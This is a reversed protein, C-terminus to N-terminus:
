LGHGRHSARDPAEERRGEAAALRRSPRADHSSALAAASVAYAPLELVRDRLRDVLSRAPEEGGARAEAYAGLAAAADGQGARADLEAAVSAATLTLRPAGAEVSDHLLGARAATLLLAIAGAGGAEAAGLADRHAEVAREATDRASWGAVNAFRATGRGELLAFSVPDTLPCQVARLRARGPLAATALVLLGDESLAPYPGSRGALAAAGLAAPDAPSGPVPAFSEDPLAPRALSRWDALPLLEPERGLLARLPDRARAGTVLEDAGGGVLEVETAGAPAVEEALGAAIRSTLSLLHGLAEDLPAAPSRHLRAHLDLAFHLAEDEEPFLRIARQLAARRDTFREGSILSLMVRIPESVLKFCLYPLRPGPPSACAGIAYRWWYQVELWAAVRLQDRSLEPAAPLPGRGSIRRWDRLPGEIGPRIAIEAPDIRPPAGAEGGAEPPCLCPSGAVARRLDAEEYVAVYVLLRLPPIAACLREFRRRVAERAEGPRGPRTPVVVVLDIDSVGYLPDGEALSGRAFAASGPHGRRLYAAVARATLRYAASWLRGLPGRGSRLMARRLREAIAEM